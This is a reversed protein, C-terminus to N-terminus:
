RWRSPRGTNSRASRESSSASRAMAPAASASRPTVGDSVDQRPLELAGYSVRARVVLRVPPITVSGVGAPRAGMGAQCTGGAAYPGYLDIAVLRVGRPAHARAAAAHIADRALADAAATCADRRLASQPAADRERLAEGSFAAQPYDAAPESEATSAPEPSPASRPARLAPVALAFSVQVVVENTESTQLPGGNACWDLPDGRALLAAVPHTVDARGGLAAAVRQARAAADALARVVAGSEGECRAVSAVRGVADAHLAPAHGEITLLPLDARLRLRLLPSQPPAWEDPVTGIDARPPLAAFRLPQAFAYTRRDAFVTSAPWAVGAPFELHEDAGCLPQEPPPGDIFLPPHTQDLISVAGAPAGLARVLVRVGEEAATTALSDFPACTAYGHGVAVIRGTSVPDRYNLNGVAAAIRGTLERLGTDDVRGPIAVRVFGGYPGGNTDGSWRGLAETPRAFIVAEPVIRRLLATLAATADANAAVTDQAHVAVLLEVREAAREVITGITGALVPRAPDAAIVLPRQTGRPRHVAPAHISSPRQAPVCGGGMRVALAAAALVAAM